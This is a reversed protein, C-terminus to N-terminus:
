SRTPAPGESSCTAATAAAGSRSTAGKDGYMIDSNPQTGQETGGVLVDDGEGGHMMDSGLLGIMVDNGNRGDMVDTNNLSQNTAGAPQIVPEAPQRRRRRVASRQPAHGRDAGGERKRDAADSAVAFAMVIRLSCRSGGCRPRSGVHSEFGTEVEIM